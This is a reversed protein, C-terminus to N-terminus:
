SLSIDTKSKDLGHFHKFGSDLSYGFATYEISIIRPIRTFRCYFSKRFKMFKTSKTSVKATIFIYSKFSVYQRIHNM